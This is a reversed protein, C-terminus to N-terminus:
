SEGESYNITTFIVELDQEQANVWLEQKLKELTIDMKFEGFVYPNSKNKIVSVVTKEHPNMQILYWLLKSADRANRAMFTFSKM